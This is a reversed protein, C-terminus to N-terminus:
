PRCMKEWLRRVRAESRATVHRGRFQLEQVGLRRAVEAKTLCERALEALMRKTEAAPVLAGDSRCEPTVDLIRKESQRRIKQQRGAAVELLSTRSVRAVDAVTKCGVGQESLWRLHARAPGADVFGNWVLRRRCDVCVGGASDKRLIRARSCPEGEVGPCSRRYVRIRKSGDPQTVERVIPAGAPPPALELVLKRAHQRRRRKANSFAVRCADCRCGSGYRYEDGHPWDGFDRPQVSVESHGPQRAGERLTRAPRAIALVDDWSGEFVGCCDPEACEAFELAVGDEHLKEAMVKAEYALTGPKV